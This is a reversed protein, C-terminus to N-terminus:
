RVRMLDHSLIGAPSSAPSYSVTRIAAAYARRNSFLSLIMGLDPPHFITKYVGFSLTITFRSTFFSLCRENPGLVGAEGIEPANTRKGHGGM